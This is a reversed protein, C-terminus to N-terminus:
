KTPSNSMIPTSSMQIKFDEQPFISQKLLDQFETEVEEASKGKVKQLSFSVQFKKGGLDDLNIFYNQM